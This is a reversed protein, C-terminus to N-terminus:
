ERSTSKKVIMLHGLWGVGVLIWVGSFIIRGITDEKMVVGFTPIAAVIFGIIAMTISFRPSIKRKSM